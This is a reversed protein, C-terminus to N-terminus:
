VEIDILRINGDIGADVYQYKVTVPSRNVITAIVPATDVCLEVFSAIYSDLKEDSGLAKDIVHIYASTIIRYTAIKQILNIPNILGPDKITLTDTSTPEHNGNLIQDLTPEPMPLAPTLPTPESAVESKDSQSDDQSLLANIGKPWCAFISILGRPKSKNVAAYMTAKSTEMRALLDKYVVKEASKPINKEKMKALKEERKRKREQAAENVKKKKAPPNPPNKQKPRESHATETVVVNTGAELMIRQDVTTIPEMQTRAQQRPGNFQM